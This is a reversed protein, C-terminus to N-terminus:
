GRLKAFDHVTSHVWYVWVYTGTYFDIKRLGNRWMYGAIIMRAQMPHKIRQVVEEGSSNDLFSVINELEKERVIFRILSEYDLGCSDFTQCLSDAYSPIPSVNEIESVQVKKFELRGSAPNGMLMGALILGKVVIGVVM